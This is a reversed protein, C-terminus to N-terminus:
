TARGLPATPQDATHSQTIEQDHGSKILLQFKMSLETSCSFLKIVEPCPEQKNERNASKGEERSEKNVRKKRRFPTSVDTGVWLYAKFKAYQYSQM